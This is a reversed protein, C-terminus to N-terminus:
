QERFLNEERTLNYIDTISQILRTITNFKARAKTVEDASFKVLLLGGSREFFVDKYDPKLSFVILDLLRENGRFKIEIEIL